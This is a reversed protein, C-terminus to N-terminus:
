PGRGLYRAVLVLADDTGRAHRALVRDAIRQPPDGPVVEQAFSSRIGDTAFALTDGPRVSLVSAHLPPVQYGVVGGRLTVHERAPGGKPDARVLLGEVNGVGLWAMTSDWLNFSALSLVVGRTRRIAEHCRQVLAVLPEHAYSELTAVAARAAAAAEDGHGLGDVVAVLVGHHFPKVLHLDGSEPQGALALGAVGWELEPESAAAQEGM